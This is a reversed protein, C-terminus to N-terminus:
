GALAVPPDTEDTWPESDDPVRGAEALRREEAEEPLVARMTVTMAWVRECEGCTMWLRHVAGASVEEGGAVPELDGGCVRCDARVTFAAATM